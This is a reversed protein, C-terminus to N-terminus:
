PTDMFEMPLEESQPAAYEVKAAANKQSNKNPQNAGAIRTNVDLMGMQGLFMVENILRKAIIVSQRDMQRLENAAYRGFGNYYDGPPEGPGGAGSVVHPEFSEYFREPYGELAVRQRKPRRPAAATLNSTAEASYSSDKDEAASGHGGNDYATILAENNSENDDDSTELYSRGLRVRDEGVYQDNLFELSWLTPEYTEGYRKADIVKKFERLYCTRLNAIKRKLDDMTCQENYKRILVLLSEYAENKLEKNKYEPDKIRWLCTYSKYEEILELILKREMAVVM